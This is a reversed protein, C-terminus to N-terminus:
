SSQPARDGALSSSAGIAAAAHAALHHSTHSTLAPIIYKRKLGSPIYCHTALVPKEPARHHPEQQLYMERSPDGETLHVSSHLSCATSFILGVNFQQKLASEKSSAEAMIFMTYNHDRSRM